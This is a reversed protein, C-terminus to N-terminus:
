RPLLRNSCPRVERETSSKEYCMLLPSYILGEKLHTTTFKRDHEEKSKTTDTAMATFASGLQIGLMSVVLGLTHMPIM